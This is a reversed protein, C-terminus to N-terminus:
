AVQRWPCCPPYTCAAGARESRAAMSRAGAWVRRELSLSVGWGEGLENFVIALDLEGEDLLSLIHPAVGLEVQVRVAPYRTAFRALWLRCCEAYRLSRTRRNQM